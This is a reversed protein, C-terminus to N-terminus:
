RSDEGPLGIMREQGRWAENEVRCAPSSSPLVILSSGNRVMHRSLLLLLTTRHNEDTRIDM